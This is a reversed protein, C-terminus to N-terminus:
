QRHSANALVETAWQNLSKGSAKAAITVAAHVEPPVRFMLKGSFPKQPKKGIARCTEMYDIVAEKFADRLESVSEGHFTVLDEIGLIRGFFINDRADFEVRASFGKYALINNM